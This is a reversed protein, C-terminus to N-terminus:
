RPGQQSSQAGASVGRLMRAVVRGEFDIVDLLLERLDSPLDLDLLPKLTDYFPGRGHRRTTDKVSANGLFYRLTSESVNAILAFQRVSIGNDAIFRSLRQAARTNLEIRRTVSM